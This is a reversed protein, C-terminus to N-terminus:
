AAELGKPFRDGVLNLQINHELLAKLGALVLAFGETSSKAYEVVEDGSGAFGSDTIEVFTTGDGRDTFLWEVQSASGYAPWEVVIRRNPEIAKVTVTISMNYMEWTWVVQRGAQLPGSGKTFWFKGTIEPNVFATFVEAIPRRILMGTKASPPQSLQLQSV